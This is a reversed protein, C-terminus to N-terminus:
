EKWEITWEPQSGSPAERKARFASLLREELSADALPDDSRELVLQVRESVYAVVGTINLIPQMRFSSAGDKRSGPVCLELCDLLGCRAVDVTQSLDNWSRALVCIRVSPAM